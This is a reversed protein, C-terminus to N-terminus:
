KVDIWAEQYQEVDPFAARLRRVTEEYKPRNGTSEYFNILAGLLSRDNGLKVMGEMITKEAASNDKLQYQSIQALQIYLDPDSFNNKIALRYYSAAQKYDKIGLRYVEAINRLGLINNPTIALSKKYAEIAGDYDNLSYKLGGIAIWTEWIDPKEAYMKKKDDIDTQLRARTADDLDAPITIGVFPDEAASPQRSGKERWLGYGLAILLLLTAFWFFKQKDTM